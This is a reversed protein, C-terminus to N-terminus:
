PDHGFRSFPHPSTSYSLLTGGALEVGKHIRHLMDESVNEGFSSAYHHNYADNVFAKQLYTHVAINNRIFYEVAPALMLVVLAGIAFLFPTNRWIPIYQRSHIRTTYEYALGLLLLTGIIWWLTM